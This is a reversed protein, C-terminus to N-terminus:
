AVDYARSVRDKKTSNNLLYTLIEDFIRVGEATLISEPHFQVGYFLESKLAHVEDSEPDVTVEIKQDTLPSEIFQKQSRASFTNYFGVREPKGFLDITKQVGQNPDDRRIVDMGLTLSLVQHSLCVAMFARKETLLTKISDYLKAIKPDDRENPDGPGPGMVILDYDSDFSYDEDYRRVEVNCDMSRLQHRIMYTFTDEEDIVLIKKGSLASSKAFTSQGETLWFQGINENRSALTKIVDPHESFKQAAGVGLANLLGSAKARTEKAEAFPDSGRVLTAGVSLSFIGQKSIDATRILISSDLKRQGNQQSVLGIVGSYYGRGGPEYHRIIRAASEQPSGTVSPAFMTERLIGIPNMTTEGDIFYETHAVFPMEKLFPGKTVVNEDCVRTMMKLEEDVVMFLEDSEKKDELFAIIESLKPGTAPYRYTGSIPNMMAIGEDLTIHKEPTAGVLVREGTNAIFVWYSGAKKTLLKRFVTLAADLYNGHLGAKYARKLVFSAGKGEGIELDLVNRVMEAYDEDSHDFGNDDMTLTRDPIANLVEEASYVEQNDIDMSVLPTNDDTVEFGRESLQKYPLIVLKEHHLNSENERLPPLSIDSLLDVYDVKGSIVDVTQLNDAELRCIMAFPQTLDALITNLLGKDSTHSSM